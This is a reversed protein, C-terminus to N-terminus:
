YGLSRSVDTRRALAVCDLGGPRIPSVADIWVASQHGGSATSSATAEGCVVADDYVRANDAVRAYDLIQADGFVRANGFVEAHHDVTASEEVHASRAVWGGVSGDANLHRAASVAGDGFDHLLRGSPTSTLDPSSPPAPLSAWHSSPDGAPTPAGQNASRKFTIM